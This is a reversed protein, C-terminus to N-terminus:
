EVRSQPAPPKRYAFRIAIVLEHTGSSYNKINTTSFDYSYSISINEQYIFGAFACVADRTRFTGGLWFKQKYTAKVGFDFQVPAPKVYKVLLSPEIKFDDGIDFRYGAMSYSHM